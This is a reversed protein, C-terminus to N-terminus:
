NVFVTRKETVLLCAGRKSGPPTSKPMSVMNQIIADKNSSFFNEYSFDKEYVPDTVLREIIQSLTMSAMINTQKNTQV